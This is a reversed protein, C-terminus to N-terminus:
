AMDLAQCLCRCVIDVQSESMVSSFPLALSVDSLHETVPFDGQQYGLKQQYFPQLHIPAFYPRSPVGLEVLRAMVRDRSAPPRFRVVYVFWSMRTTTPAIYPREACRGM